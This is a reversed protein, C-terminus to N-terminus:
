RKVMLFQEMNANETRRITFGNKLAPMMILGVFHIGKIYLGTIEKQCNECIM